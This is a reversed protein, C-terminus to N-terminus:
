KKRYVLLRSQMSFASSMIPETVGIVTLVRPGIGPGSYRGSPNANYASVLAPSECRGGVSMECVSGGLAIIPYNLQEDPYKAGFTLLQRLTAARYDDNNLLSQAEQITKYQGRVKRVEFLELKVEGANEEVSPLDDLFNLYTTFFDSIFDYQGLKVLELLTQSKKVFIPFVRARASKTNEASSSLPADAFVAQPIAQLVVLVLGTFLANKLSM